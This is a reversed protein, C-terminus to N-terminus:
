DIRYKDVFDSGMIFINDGNYGIKTYAKTLEIKNLLMLSMDFNFVTEKCLVIIRSGDSFIDIVDEEINYTHTANGTTDVVTVTSYNNLLNKTVLVTEKTSSNIFNQINGKYEFTTQQKTKTNLTIVADKGVVTINSGESYSIELPLIGDIKYINADTTENINLEYINASIIGSPSIISSALLHKNDPSFCINNIRDTVSYTYIEELSQNYVTIISAYRDHTTVVATLGSDSIQATIIQNSLKVEGIQNNPTDVRFNTGGRDYTLLHKNGERVVPNTYGHIITTGKKGNESYTLVNTKTLLSINSGFNYIDLLQENKIILPFYDNSSEPNNTIIENIPSGKFVQLVNLLVLLIGFVILLMVLKKVVSKRKQKSRYEEINKYKAM